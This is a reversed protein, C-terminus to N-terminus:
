DTAPTLERVQYRDRIFKNFFKGKSPAASFASYISVPVEEYLYIRGTVFTIELRRSEPDYDHASIVTSPM